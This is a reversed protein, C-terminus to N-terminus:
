VRGLKTRFARNESDNLWHRLREVDLIRGGPTMIGQKALEPFLVNPISAVHHLDGSWNDPSANQLWKNGEVLGTLDEQREIIFTDNTHDFHFTELAGTLADRDFFRSEM